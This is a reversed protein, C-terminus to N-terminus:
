RDILWKECSRSNVVSEILSQVAWSSRRRLGPWLNDYEILRETDNLGILNCNAFYLRLIYQFNVPLHGLLSTISESAYYIEGTSSFVMIFGDLAELILHTFEENSLFSPKWDEQIEHVRSRVTIELPWLHLFFFIYKSRIM